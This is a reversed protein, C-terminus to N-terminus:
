YLFSKKKKVQQVVITARPTSCVAEMPNSVVNVGSNNNISTNNNCKSSLSSTQQGLDLDIENEKSYNSSTLTETAESTTPASTTPEAFFDIRLDPLTTPTTTNTLVSESYRSSSQAINLSSVILKNSSATPSKKDFRSLNYMESSPSITGSRRKNQREKEQQSIITYQHFVDCPSGKLSGDLNQSSNTHYDYSPSEAAEYDFPFRSRSYEDGDYEEDVAFCERQIRDYDIAERDFPFMTYDSKRIVTQPTASDDYFNVLKSSNASQNGSHKRYVPASNIKRHKTEKEKNATSPSEKFINTLRDCKFSRKEKQSNSRNIDEKRNTTSNNTSSIYKNSSEATSNMPKNSNSLTTTAVTSIANGNSTEFTFQQKNKDLNRASKPSAPLDFTFSDSTNSAVPATHPYTQKNLDQFSM